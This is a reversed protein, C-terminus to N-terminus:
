LGIRFHRLWEDVFRATKPSAPVNGRIELEGRAWNGAEDRVLSLTAREPWLVRYIYTSGQAIRKAYAAVCNDQARGEEELAEVSTLPEIARVPPVPPFAPFGKAM